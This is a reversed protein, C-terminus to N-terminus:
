PCGAVFQTQFCGFDAVSLSGDGNCDPYCLLGLVANVDDQNVRLDGTMDCSLDFGVAEGTDAWDADGTVYPNNIFQAKIYDVDLQSITGDQGIPAFGPTHRNSGNNVDFRAMGPQYGGVGGGGAIATDFFNNDGTLTNWANDIAEFGAKRDLRGTGPDIALGDAWYRVDSASFNGDGNFDGIIEISADTGPAGAIPGTGNPATWSPGGNRARYAKLMESADNLNRLGDGNFDGSIRNRSPLNAGYSIQAGGQTIYFNQSGTVGDSYTEGTKRTPVKGNLSATGFSAYAANGLVHSARVFDQLFQNLSPNPSLVTPNTAGQVFDTASTLIFNLALFEGPTFLTPNSGPANKFATVSRTTNNLYAAAEVNRMAPNTNGPDGGKAVPASRPDGFHAFIAPGGITYGDADNDLVDNITPRSYETGGALDNRVALVEMIGGNLWGSNIGREAGSYGIALRHNRSTTEMEGSGVKNTPIFDPGLLHQSAAVSLEGINESMGWSPDLGLSNNFGNRTGSGADRTVGMLNEGSALRGSAFLHRLNSQDIQTLGTGFNTMAAIPAFCIRTDFITNDDPTGVSLNATGLNALQHGFTTPTGDKNLSVRANNGYGSQGPLKNFVPTGGQFVAWVSPVDVPAMDVRIGGASATPPATYEAVPSQNFGAPMTSRVPAGGGNGLNFIANSSAGNTIYQLRNHFAKSANASKLDVGDATTVYSRGFDVLEQFGNVSGVARYQVIWVQGAVSGPPLGFPALQQNTGFIRAVGDGDVDIYDNTAAPAKLFNELLTAGSQNILYSQASAIGGVGAVLGCAALLQNRRNSKM